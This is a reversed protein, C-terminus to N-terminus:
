SSYSNNVVTTIRATRKDLSAVKGHFSKVGYWETSAVVYERQLIDFDSNLDMEQKQIIGYPNMKHIFAHYSPKGGITPGQPISDVTVIAMGLLHGKYGDIMATPDVANAQLFGTTTDNLLDLYQLSHMFCIVSDESHQQFALVKGANLNRINMTGTGDSATFGQTYNGDSSFETLLDSDVQEAHVRAMQRQAEDLIQASSAASKKFAKKKFGVAKGIEKVTCSFSDDQLRDVTLGETEAPTEAPGIAKFYPFTVTMGKGADPALDENRVAMQGYVLKKDFYARIHDQWVLPQFVFDSSQTASM